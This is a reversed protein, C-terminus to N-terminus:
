KVYIFEKANILVHCLDAWAGPDDPGAGSQAADALFALAAATEQTSPPRGLAVEYLRALRDQPSRGVGSRDETRLRDAWLRAQGVVFPDNMLTLAQAPVNSVNRRGMPSAPSPFDFTLFMPNLFNRRVNLYLSRRGNGDLPGSAAPRGRGDMFPTLFPVVSPGYLIPDLRGSVALLADRIEEAELRRLNMRHLAENNPDLRHSLAPDAAESQMRYTSSLVCLRHLAKISWGGAIFRAALHDLLERHTPPRGMVGFDDPTRVIGEGFHHKWVRNVLVRALLPRGHEVMSRALELRGSGRPPVPQVPGAMVELFRRAVVAGPNRSSGRILVHADEPSGDAIALALNPAPIEAAIAEYRNLADDWPHEACPEACGGLDAVDRTIMRRKRPVPRADSFCIEDVAVYGDGPYYSTPGKSSSATYDTTAGDAIEIYARHGIWMGVDQSHWAPQDGNVEITLPGYIPSRIKEFGDVIINIRGGHGAALTHIYRKEIVFTRSRLTGELSSAILGSHAIGPAVLAARRTTGDRRILWDGARSPGEGFADGTVTWGSYDPGDFDEFAVPEDAPGSRRALQTAEEQRWAKSLGTGQGSAEILPRIATKLARLAAVRDAIRAPPDIFAHDHRSSKLYGALAYYDEARIPDFKHDHCRACAVTLGLFAKSLVDIQHDIRTAQEDLLDVPSHTGEGLFYIGTGLISENSGDGPHRRPPKVLDGAIQEVVFQDYPLDRNLARIVYDRYRYADPIDYDFEHGSTEAYGVLDLWHRAWREGYRPSALLRDVVKDYALPGPDALFDALERPTPPLGTLDFTVRRLWTRRDAEPAPALGRAELGALVFVDILTRPWRTDKVVPIPAADLPQFSWHRAREQLNFGGTAGGSMSASVPKSDPAPPWPAGMEVWRTLTAIEEAPLKSKPPMQHLEGYNIADILLSERAAGPVIAPGSEGGALVAVRSDLRLDGKAKTPGHCTQCRGVLIPRVAREFFAVAAPDAAPANTPDARDDAGASARASVVLACFALAPILRALGRTAGGCHRAPDAGPSQRTRATRRLM